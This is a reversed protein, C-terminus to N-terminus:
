VTGLDFIRSNGSADITLQDAGLGEITVSDTVDFQGLTTAITQGALVSAFGIRDLGPLDNALEIAERLSLDGATFDGDNEDAAIDVILVGEQREYAGMDVVAAADNDGDIVRDFPSEGRQNFDLPPSFANAVFAPDGADIAPSDSSLAHTQTLGSNNALSGLLPDIPAAGTGILSGGLNSITAGTNDGILSFRADFSGGVFGDDLDPATGTKDINGAVITHDLLPTDFVLHIGGGRGSGNNDADSTNNTVTSHQITLQGSGNYIGGGFGNAENGSITSQIITLTAGFNVL